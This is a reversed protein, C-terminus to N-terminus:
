IDFFVTEGEGQLVIDFRYSPIGAQADRRAILTNRMAEGPVQELIPDAANAEAEDEFYARTHLHINIGRAFIYVTLHPAQARGDRWAVQGPKITEFRYLGSKFDTVARAWGTHSNADFRGGADAQWIELMADRVLEGAGDRVVGEIVIAEGGKLGTIHLKEQTRVKLGASAPVTGIHVYPGATQSPTEKLVKVTM